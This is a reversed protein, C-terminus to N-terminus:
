PIAVTFLSKECVVSSAVYVFDHQHHWWHAVGVEPRTKTTGYTVQTESTPGTTDTRGPRRTPPPSGQAQREERGARDRGFFFCFCIYVTGTCANCRLMAMSM